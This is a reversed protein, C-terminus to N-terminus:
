SRMRERVAALAAGFSDGLLVGSTKSSEEARILSLMEADCASADTSWIGHYCRMPLSLYISDRIFRTLDVREQETSITWVEGEYDPTVCASRVVTLSGEVLFPLEFHGLCRDCEVTLNGTLLLSFCYGDSVQEASIRIALEGGFVGFQEGDGFFDNHLRGELSFDGRDIDSLLVEYKIIEGSVKAAILRM